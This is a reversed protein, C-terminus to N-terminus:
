DNTFAKIGLFSLQLNSYAANGENQLTIQITSKKEWLTIMPIIFPLQGNGAMNPLPVPNSMYQRGTTTNILTLLVAPLQDASRSTAVGGVLAFAAFKTWFFDSDGAINFTQTVSAGAALSAITDSEYTFFTRAYYRGSMWPAGRAGPPMMAGPAANASM